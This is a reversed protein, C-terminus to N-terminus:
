YLLRYIFSILFFYTYHFLSIRLSPFSVFNQDMFQTIGHTSSTTIAQHNDAHKLNEVFFNFSQIEDAVTNYTKGYEKKFSEWKSKQVVADDSYHISSAVNSGAFLLLAALLNM